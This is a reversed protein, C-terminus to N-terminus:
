ETSSVQFWMRNHTTWSMHLFWICQSPRTLRATRGGRTNWTRLQQIIKIVNPIDQAKHWQLNTWIRPKHASNTFYLLNRWPSRKQRDTQRDMRSTIRLTHTSQHPAQLQWNPSSYWTVSLTNSIHQIKNHKTNPVCNTFFRHQFTHELRQTYLIYQRLRDQIPCLKCWRFDSRRGPTIM